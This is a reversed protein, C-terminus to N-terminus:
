FLYAVGAQIGLTTNYRYDRVSMYQKVASLLSYYCRAEVHVAWHRSPQIELGLGGALGCDARQDRERNFVYPQNVKEAKGSMPNSVTGEQHSAAWYGAYVGINAIGRLALGKANLVGGFRFQAMVPLHLYTNHTIYNTGAYVGTRYFRNSKELAVFEARLGLWPLFDYQAFVAASWGWVGGYHYDTQYHTNATYWNYDAGGSIGVRWQARKTREQAGKTRSQTEAVREQAGALAPLLVIASLVFLLKRKM